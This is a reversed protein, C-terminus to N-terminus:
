EKREGLREILKLLLENRRIDTETRNRMFQVTNYILWIIFCLTVPVILVFLGGLLGIGSLM